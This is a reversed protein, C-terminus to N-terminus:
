PCGKIERKIKTKRTTEKRNKRKPSLEKKKKGLTSKKYSPILAVLLRLRRDEM